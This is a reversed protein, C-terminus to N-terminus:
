VIASETSGSSSSTDTLMSYLVYIQSNQEVVFDGAIEGLALETRARM